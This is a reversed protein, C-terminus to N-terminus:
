TYWYPYFFNETEVFAVKRPKLPINDYNLEGKFNTLGYITNFLTTKGIGNKGLIGITEGKKISFTLDKIVKKIGYSVELNKVELM